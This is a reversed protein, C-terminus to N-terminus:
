LERHTRNNVRPWTTFRIPNYWQIQGGAKSMEEFTSKSLSFAGIADVLLNVRVGKRAKAALADALRKTIEGKAVIYAELNISKKAQQISSLMAEYFHDGNTFVETKGADREPSQTLAELTQIFHQSKLDEAPAKSIRYPLGPAFLALFLLGSQIILAILALISLVKFNRAKKQIGPREQPEKGHFM